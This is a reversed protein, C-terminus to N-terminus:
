TIEQDGTLTWAQSHKEFELRQKHALRQGSRLSM